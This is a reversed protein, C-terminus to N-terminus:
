GFMTHGYLYPSANKFINEVLLPCTLFRPGVEQFKNAGIYVLQLCTLFIHVEFKQAFPHEVKLFTSSRIGLSMIDDKGLCQITKPWNTM